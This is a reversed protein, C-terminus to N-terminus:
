EQNSFSMKESDLLISRRFVITMKMEGSFLYKTMKLTSFFDLRTEERASIPQSLLGGPGGPPGKM